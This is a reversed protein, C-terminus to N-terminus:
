CACTKHHLDARNHPLLRGTRLDITGNLVNLLWHAKDFHEPIIPIGTESQARNLLAKIRQDSESRVAHKLLQEKYKLDEEYLADGQMKRLTEKALQNVKGSYDKKWRRGDYIM